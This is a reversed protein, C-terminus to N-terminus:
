VLKKMMRIYITSFGAKKVNRDAALDYEAVNKGNEYVKVCGVKDGKKVPPTINKDISISKKVSSKSGKKVTLGIDNEAIAAVKTEDSKPISIDKMVQGKKAISVTEYNAFGYDLLKAMEAFRIKSTESGLVVGILMTSDRKAAGSLCYGADDTYGTKVGIAGNYNRILKNTNTLTFPKEKGPLGVKIDEQWIKFWKHASDYKMLEKSIMGIDYACSYHNSVPLGNTNAFHSDKLGMEEAKANMAAVFGDVSGYLYESMAVCGDNASVLIIGKILEEVTHKEGPEMYMQSGGMSAANESVTVKDSLKIKGSECGELILLLTMVKTVSAPPLHKHANQEFLVKGSGGDILVASKANIKMSNDGAAAKAATRVSAPVASTVLKSEEVITLSRKELNFKDIGMFGGGALVVAALAVCLIKEIRSLKKFRNKM